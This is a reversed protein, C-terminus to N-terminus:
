DLNGQNWWCNNIEDKEIRINGLCDKPQNAKVEDLVRQANDLDCGCVRILCGEIRGFIKFDGVIYYEYRKNEM